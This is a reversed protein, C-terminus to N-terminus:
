SSFVFVLILAVCGFCMTGAILWGVIVTGAGVLQRYIPDEKRQKSMKFLSIVAIPVLIPAAIFFLLCGVFCLSIARDPRALYRSFAKASKKKGKKGLHQASYTEGDITVACLSCIYDGTGACIEVAQKTPHHACVADDPLATKAAEVTHPAPYFPYVDGQWNCLPCHIRGEQAAELTEKCSPCELGRMALTDQM